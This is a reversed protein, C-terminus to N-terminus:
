PRASRHWGRRLRSGEAGIHIPDSQRAPRGAGGLGHAPSLGLCASHSVRSAAPVLCNLQLPPLVELSGYAHTREHPRAGTPREVSTQKAGAAVEVNRLKSASSQPDPRYIPTWLPGVRVTQKLSHSILQNQCQPPCRQVGIPTSGSGVLERSIAFM